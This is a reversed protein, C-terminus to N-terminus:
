SSGSALAADLAHRFAAPADAVYWKVGLRLLDALSGPTFAFPRLQLAIGRQMLEARAHRLFDWDLGYEVQDGTATAPLHLQLQTISRLGQALRQEFRHPIEAARGGIWTMAPAGPAHLQIEDLVEQYGSIFIVRDQVGFSDLVDVVRAVDAAKIEVYLRRSRVRIMEELVEELLPVHLGRPPVSGEAPRFEAGVEWRQVEALTLEAVNTSAVPEPAFGTRALTADHLCILAGDATTRVDIEPIAGRIGWAHRYAMMTNEPTEDISGRHAQFYIEDPAM